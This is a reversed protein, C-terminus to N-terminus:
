SLDKIGQDRTTFPGKNPWLQWFTFNLRPSSPIIALTGILHLQHAASTLSWTLIAEECDLSLDRLYIILVFCDIVVVFKASFHSDLTFLCFSPPFFDQFFKVLNIRNSGWSCCPYNLREESQMEIRTDVGLKFLVYSPWVIDQIM